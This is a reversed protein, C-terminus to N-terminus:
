GAVVEGPELALEQFTVEEGPGAHCALFHLPARNRCEGHKETQHAAQQAFTM